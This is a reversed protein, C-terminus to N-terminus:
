RKPLLDEPFGVEVAIAQPRRGDPDRYVWMAGTESTKLINSKSLLEIRDEGVSFTLRGGNVDGVKQFGYTDPPTRMLFVIGIRPLAIKVASGIMWSNGFETVLKGNISLRMEQLSIEEDPRTQRRGQAVPQILDFLREGTSPDSLVELSVTEGLAVQPFERVRAITPYDRRAALVTVSLQPNTILGSLRRKIEAALEDPSYGAARIEGLGPLRINGDARVTQPRDLDSDGDVKVALRDGPALTLYLAVFHEPDNPLARVTFSGAENPLLSLDYAFLVNGERDMVMRHSIDGEDIAVVGKPPRASNILTSETHVRLAGHRFTVNLDNDFRKQAGAWTALCLGTIIIRVM